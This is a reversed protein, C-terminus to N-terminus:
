PTVTGITDRLERLQGAPVGLGNIRMRSADTDRVWTSCAVMLAERVMWQNYLLLRNAPARLADDLIAFDDSSGPPRAPVPWFAGDDYRARYHVTSSREHTGPLRSGGGTLDARTM